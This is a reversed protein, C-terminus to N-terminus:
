GPKKVLSFRHMQEDAVYALVIGNFMVVAGLLDFCNFRVQSSAIYFYPISAAFVLLTPFVMLGFLNLLPWLIKPCKSKLDDYRWDQKSLGPWTYFFNLTLRIAYMQTLFFAAHMRISTHQKDRAVSSFKFFYICNVLPQVSWYPDYLSTCSTLTALVWVVLTGAFNAYLAKKIEHTEQDIKYAIVYWGAFIAAAYTVVQASIGVIRAQTRPIM